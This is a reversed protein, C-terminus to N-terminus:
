RRQPASTLREILDKARLKLKKLRMLVFPSVGRSRQARRLMEDIQQHRLMVRFLRNTVTLEEEFAHSEIPNRCEDPATPREFRM